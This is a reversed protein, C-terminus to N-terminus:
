NTPSPSKVASDYYIQYRDTVSLYREKGSERIIDLREKLWEYAREDCTVMELVSDCQEPRLLIKRIEGEENCYVIPLNQEYVIQDIHNTRANFIDPLPNYLAPAHDLTWAALPTMELYGIPNSVIIMLMMGGTEVLAAITGLTTFKGWNRGELQDLYGFVAMLLITGAWSSYRALGSMGSNIHVELSYSLVVALFAMGLTFIHWKRQIIGGFVLIIWFALFFLGYYPLFGLNLDWLYAWFRGAIRLLDADMETTATMNFHGIYYFSRVFPLFCPLFCSAVRLIYDPRKLIDKIGRKRIQGICFELAM